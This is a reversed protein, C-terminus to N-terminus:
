MYDNNYVGRTFVITSVVVSRAKVDDEENASKKSVDLCM